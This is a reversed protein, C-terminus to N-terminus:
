SPKRYTGKAHHSATGEIGIEVKWSQSFQILTCLTAERGEVWRLGNARKTSFLLIINEVRANHKM